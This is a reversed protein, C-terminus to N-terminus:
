YKELEDTIFSVLLKMQTKEPLSNFNILDDGNYKKIRQKNEQKIISMIRKLENLYYVDKLLKTGIDKNDKEGNSVLIDLFSCIDSYISPINAFFKLEDWVIQEKDINKAENIFENFQKIM